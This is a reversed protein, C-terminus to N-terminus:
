GNRNYRNHPLFFDEVSISQAKVEYAM